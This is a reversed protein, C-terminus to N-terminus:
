TSTKCEERAYADLDARARKANTFRHQQAAAIMRDVDDRLNEPVANRLNRATRVYADVANRLNGDFTEPDSVDINAVHLGNTALAALYRCAPENSFPTAASGGGGSCAALLFAGGAIAVVMLRPGVRRPAVRGSVFGGLAM